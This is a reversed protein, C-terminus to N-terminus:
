GWRSEIEPTLAEGYLQRYISRLRDYTRAYEEYSITTGDVKIAYSSPTLRDGKGWVLFITGIFSLVIVGFVVKIFVSDKYQRM